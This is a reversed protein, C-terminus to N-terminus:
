FINKNQGVNEGPTKNNYVQLFCLLCHQYSIKREKRKKREKKRLFDGGRDPRHNKSKRLV